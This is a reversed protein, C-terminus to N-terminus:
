MFGLTVYCLKHTATCLNHVLIASHGAACIVPRFIERAHVFCTDLGGLSVLNHGLIRKRANLILVVLCEKMPDYWSAANPINARWYQVAEEPTNIHQTPTVCERIRMVKFEIAPNM